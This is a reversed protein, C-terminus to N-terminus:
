AQSLEGLSITTAGEPGRLRPPFSMSAPAPFGPMFAQASPFIDRFLRGIVWRFLNRILELQGGAQNKIAGKSRRVM